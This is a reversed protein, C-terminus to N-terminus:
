SHETDYINHEKIYELTYPEIFPIVSKNNKLLERLISSSCEIGLTTKVNRPVELVKFNELIWDGNKWKSIQQVVDTGGIIYYENKNSIELLKSLSEFTYTFKHREEHDSVYINDFGAFTRGTMTIRDKFSTKTEKWPNKWAPIVFVGEMGHNLAYHAAWIHGIHPPDFSGLLLGIRM